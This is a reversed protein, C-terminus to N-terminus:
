ESGTEEEIWLVDFMDKPRGTSRKNRILHELSLIPVTMGGIDRYERTEWADAFSVGDIATMIDIREPDYGVWFVLGPRRLDEITLQGDHLPAGFRALATWVREANADDPRVFIDLDGTARAFQHGSMAFAGVVLFEARAAFLESIIDRFAPRLMNM